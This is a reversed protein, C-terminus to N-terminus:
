GGHQALEVLPEVFRSPARHIKVVGVPRGPGKMEPSRDGPTLLQDSIEASHEGAGRDWMVDQVHGTPMALSGQHVRGDLLDVGPVVSRKLARNVLEPGGPGPGSHT